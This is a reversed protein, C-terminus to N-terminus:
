RFYKKAIESDPDFVSKLGAAQMHRDLISLDDKGEFQMIVRAQRIVEDVVDIEHLMLGREPFLAKLEPGDQWLLVLQFLKVKANVLNYVFDEGFDAAQRAILGIQEKEDETFIIERESM